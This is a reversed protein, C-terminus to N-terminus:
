RGTTRTSFRLTLRFRARSLFISTPIATSSRHAAPPAPGHNTHRIAAWSVICSAPFIYSGNSGSTTSNVDDYARLRRESNLRTRARRARSITRCSSTTRMIRRGDPEAAAMPSHKRSPSRPLNSVANREDPHAPIAASYRRGSEQEAGPQRLDPGNNEQSNSNIAPAPCAIASGARWRHEELRNYEERVTLTNAKGLQVDLRPSVDPAFTPNAFAEDDLEPRRHRRDSPSAPLISRRWFTRM